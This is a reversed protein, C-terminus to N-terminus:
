AVDRRSTSNTEEKADFDGKDACRGLIYMGVVAAISLGIIVIIKTTM